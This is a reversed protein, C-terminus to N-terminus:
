DADLLLASRAVLGSATVSAFESPFFLLADRLALFRVRLAHPPPLIPPMHSSGLQLLSLSSFPRPSELAPLWRPTLAPNKRANAPRTRSSGPDGVVAPKNTRTSSELGQWGAGLEDGTRALRAGQSKRAYATLQVNMATCPWKLEHVVRAHGYMAM